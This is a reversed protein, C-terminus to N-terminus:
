ETPSQDSQGEFFGEPFAPFERFDALERWVRKLTATKRFRFTHMEGSSPDRVKVTFNQWDNPHVEAAQCSEGTPGNTPAIRYPTPHIELTVAPIMVEWNKPRKTM